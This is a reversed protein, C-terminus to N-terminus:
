KSGAKGVKRRIKEEVPALYKIGKGKYPEPERFSRIKAAAEGVLQKDIGQIIITTQDPVQLSIGEPTEYEVPHSYGLSLVLKKGQLQARYGVGVLGLTKSFGVSVGCVANKLLAAYLGYLAKTKGKPDVEKPVIQVTGTSADLNLGFAESIEFQLTGKPGKVVLLKGEQKVEVGKELKILQKGIRSM